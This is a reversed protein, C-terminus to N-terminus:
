PHMRVLPFHGFQFRHIAYGIIKGGFDYVSEAPVAYDASFQLSPLNRIRLRDLQVTDERARRGRRRNRSRQASRPKEAASRSL